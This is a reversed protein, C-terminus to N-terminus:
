TPPTPTSAPPRQSARSVLTVSGIVRELSAAYKRADALHEDRHRKLETNTERLAELFSRQIAEFRTLLEQERERKAAEIAKEHERRTEEVSLEHTRSREDRRETWSMWYKLGGGVAGLMLMLAGVMETLSAAPM